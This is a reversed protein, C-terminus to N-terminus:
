GDCFVGVLVWCEDYAWWAEDLVPVVFYVFCQGVSCGVVYLASFFGWWVFGVVCYDSVAVEVVM